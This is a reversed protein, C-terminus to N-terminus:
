AYLAALTKGKANDFEHMKEQCAKLLIGYKERLKTDTEILDQVNRRGMLVTSPVKGYIMAIDSDGLGAADRCLKYTFQRPLAVTEVRGETQTHKNPVGFSQCVILEILEWKAFAFFQKSGFAPVESKSNTKTKHKM